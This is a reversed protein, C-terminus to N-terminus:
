PTPVSDEIPADTQFDITKNALINGEDDLALIELKYSEGSQLEDDTYNYIDMIEDYERVIKGNLYVEYKTADAYHVWHVKVYNTGVSLGEIVIEPIIPIEVLGEVANMIAEMKELKKSDNTEAMALAALVRGWTDPTYLTSNTPISSKADMLNQDIITVLGAVANKIVETKEVKEGNNTEAMALAALVREWTDPTYLESSAPITAKAKALNKDVNSVSPGPNGSPQSPPTPTNALAEARAAEAEQAQKQAARAAAEQEYKLREAESLKSKYLEEAQKRREEEVKEKQEKQKEQLEKLKKQLAENQKKSEDQKRKAEEAKKRREEELKKLQAEKEKEADTLQPPIVKDLDLRLGLQKNVQEILAKIAQEDVQGQEIANKVINGVLNDLNQIIREIDEQSPGQNGTMEAIYEANERDIAAKAQIIAEIIASSTNEILSDIDVITNIPDESNDGVVAQQGPYVVTSSGSGQGNPTVVGQGSAILFRSEGTVPDIGVLLNTGRVNMTSSPTGIEFKDKSNVLPTVKAWISGNWITLKTRKNGMAEDLNAIFFEANESITIEDNTDQIILRLSAYPNTSIRDGQQLIMGDYARILKVGGNKQIMVIGRVEEIKATRKAAAEASIFSYESLISYFM